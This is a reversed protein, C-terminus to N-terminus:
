VDPSILQMVEGVNKDTAGSSGNLLNRANLGLADRKEKDNLLTRFIDLLDTKDHVQIAAKNELFLKAMSRFNSMYPGFVIPKGYIAPEVLNHGGKKVLSGGIFVLESLSYLRGLCGLTDLILVTNKPKPRRRESLFRTKFGYKESLKKITKSREAHRPAILLELDSFSKLLDKYAALVVEEEGPHTSGAIILKSPEELGLNKKLCGLGPLIEVDFKMNGTVKIKSNCAGLTEIREADRATQMCFINIKKLISGFLFKIRKYGKFSKDSIRGNILIIPINRKSLVSILNPWLETEMVVFCCPNIADIVKKVIFSFDLPFYFKLIDGSIVKNATANGTKTTTSLVIKKDPFKEHLKQTFNKVALVEGVSVAHIWIPRFTSLTKFILPLKGFRQSFDKHAKSKILLYPLYILSFLAFFLDYIGM